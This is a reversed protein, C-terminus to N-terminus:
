DSDHETLGKEDFSFIGKFERERERCIYILYSMGTFQPAVTGLTFKSFKISALIAPRYQEM